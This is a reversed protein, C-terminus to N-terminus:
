SPRPQHGGPRAVKGGDDLEAYPRGEAAFDRDLRLAGQLAAMRESWYARVVAQEETDLSDYERAGRLVEAVQEGVLIWDALTSRLEEECGRLTEAFAVVGTCTPIRGAFTGDELKDYEADALAREVCDSLIFRTDM